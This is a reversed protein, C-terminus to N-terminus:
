KLNAEETAEGEDNWGMGRWVWHCVDGVVVVKKSGVEGEVLALLDLGFTREEVM